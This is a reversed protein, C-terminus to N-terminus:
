IDGIYRTSVEIMEAMKEQTYGFSKRIDQLVKGIKVTSSKRM